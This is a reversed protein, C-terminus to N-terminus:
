PKPPAPSPQPQPASPSTQSSQRLYLARSLSCFRSLSLLTLTFQSYLLQTMASKFFRPSHVKGDRNRPAIARPQPHGTREPPSRTRGFPSPPPQIHRNACPHTHAHRHTQASYPLTRRGCPFSAIQSVSCQYFLGAVWLASTFSVPLGRLRHTGM